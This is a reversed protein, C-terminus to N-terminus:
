NTCTADLNILDTDTRQSKTPPLIANQIQQTRWGSVLTGGHLVQMLRIM